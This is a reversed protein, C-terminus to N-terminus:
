RKARRKGRKKGTKKGTKKRVKKHRVSIASRKLEMLTKHHTAGLHALRDLKAACVSVRRKSATKRTAKKRRKPM